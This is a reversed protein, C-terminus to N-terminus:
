QYFNDQIQEVQGIRLYEVQNVHMGGLAIVDPCIRSFGEIYDLPVDNSVVETHM